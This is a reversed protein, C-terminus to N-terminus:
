NLIISVAGNVKEQNEDNLEIVYFYSGVPLAKGQYTGDWANDNYNGATSSDHEFIVSGWRNYIRVIANPYAEDLNPIIWRDNNGDGDPTIATAVIIECNEITITIESFPGECGSLTETIYYTTAGVINAPSASGGTQYVDTLADNTYWTLTGGSGNATMPAFTVSSCYEADESVSPALPTPLLVIEVSGSATNTCNDDSIEVLAYVGGANGLNIPSASGTITQTVGDLTYELTWDASGTVTVLVDVPTEDECYQGDGTIATVTPLDNITIVVMVEDSCGSAGDYMYLTTSANIPGTVVSGGNAQTDNFYAQNGTLDVGTIAPLDYSDCAEIPGLPDIIPSAVVTVTTNATAICGNDDTVTYTLDYPGAAANNFLPDVVSADNLSAAGTNTWAHTAYTGSGGTPNGNLQLDLDACVAAPNPSIAATPNTHITVVFSVESECAGNADYVYITMPSMAATITTGTALLNAVNGGPASYFAQGGTLDTGTVYTSANPVVYNIACSTTDDIPDIIPAGPNNLVTTPNNSVCGTTANTFIVDYTGAALNSITYPLNVPGATGTADGFWEVTGNGAGGVLISGDTGNCVSPDTPTLTIVPNPNVTVEVTSSCGNADLFTIDTTGAAVGTVVGDNDVTAVTPDSSAWPTTADPTGTSSLATTLDVCVELTGSIVPVENIVVEIDDSGICGNNDTVTYTLNYTGPATATTVTPNVVNTSNLITVDGTWAHTPYTGGGGSPNGNLPIAVGECAVAPDPTITAIPNTNVNVVFSVQADCSGNNDYAYITMPSMAATIVTGEPLEDAPNGGPASYFAQGGTLNTGTIATLPDPVVYDVECSTYNGIPDIIPAGPNNLITSVQASVCGTTGDTFTVNYNGAELDEINYPLAVPSASGSAAGTWSVTGSGPGDVTIFGDDGNCISPDNPTLTIVPIPNVTFIEEASCGNADTYTMTVSGQAVGSVEGNVNVTAIDTDSSVWPNTAAPTGSGILPVTAGACVELNGSITPTDFVTIQRTISNTCGNGDTYTYTVTHTAVGAAVPDFTFTEGNGDDTVGPGSYVGGTPTANGLGTQTGANLCVNTLASFTLFPLPNVIIEDAAFNACGNGDTYTYTITHEGIGSASPDFSYTTGNGDDTVGPGSYIGGVPSGGGLGNQVGADFCLDAPATFTVVPLPFVEVQDEAFNTCGNGDTFTYTITHVGAGAAVPDFSYTSGNGNDTVGPGSYIGGLPSGGSQLNQVGADICLDALATFTVVPLAFVEIQATAFSECAPPDPLTVVTYTITHVGVGAAIPDFSYTSGNGDDTVGPGSYVGGVPSGGGLGTQLGADICLDGPAPLTVTPTEGIVLEFNVEHFCNPTTGTADYAYITVPYSAFDGYNITSGPLYQTGTGGPGTYYAQGGTLNEGVIAPLTYSDCIEVNGIPDLVPTLNVTIVVDDVITCDDDTVSLTFTIPGSIGPPPTFVPDLINPDSLGALAGAPSASWVVTTAGEENSFSGNLQITQDSCISANAGADVELGCCSAAANYFTPIDAVCGLSTWNGTEGDAYTKMSVACNTGNECDTRVTLDFCVSWSLGSDDGECAGMGSACMGNADGWSDNPNTGAPLSYFWGAGVNAGTNYQVDGDEWWNWEGPCFSGAQQLPTTISVPQGSANFSAPDWCDGFTPVIGHLWNCNAQTYQNINYCFSVTEGPQYPGALPSGMSTATVVIEDDQNCASGDAQPTICLTFDGEQGAAGSVAILLTTNAPVFVTGSTAGGAGNFCDGNNNYITYLSCDTTGFVSFYPNAIDSSVVSVDITATTGTTTFEFWVTPNPHDYCNNGVFNPGSDAGENCEDICIETGNTMTPWPIPDNCSTETCHGSKVTFSTSASQPQATLEQNLGKTPVQAMVGDSMFGLLFAIQLAYILKSIKMTTTRTVFYDAFSSSKKTNVFYKM